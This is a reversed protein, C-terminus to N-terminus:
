NLYWVSQIGIHNAEFKEDLLVRGEELWPGSADKVRFSEFVYRAKLSWNPLVAYEAELLFGVNSKMRAKGSCDTATEQTAGCRTNDMKFVAHTAKRVGFGIRTRDTAHWLVTLEVPIRRFRQKEGNIGSTQDNHLAAAAQISFPQGPLRYSAGARFELGGGASISERYQKANNPTSLIVPTITDGGSTFGLGLFPRLGPPNHASDAGEAHSLPALAALLCALVTTKRM